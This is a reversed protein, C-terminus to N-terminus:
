RKPNEEDRDRGGCRSDALVFGLEEATQIADLLEASATAPSRGLPLELGEQPVVGILVVSAKADFADAAVELRALEVQLM